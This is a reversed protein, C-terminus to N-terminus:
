LGVKSLGEDVWDACSKGTYHKVGGDILYGAAVGAFFVIVPAIGGEVEQSENETIEVFDNNLIMEM